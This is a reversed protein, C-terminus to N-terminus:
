QHNRDDGHHDRDDGHHDRDERFHRFASEYGHRFGERYEDRAQPPVPPHRFERRREVNPPRGNEFDRHGAELGDRFGQRQIDRFEQPPADWGGRDHDSRDQGYGQQPRDQPPGNQAILLIPIALALAFAPLALRVLRM